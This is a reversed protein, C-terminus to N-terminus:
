SPIQTIPVLIAIWTGMRLVVLVPLTTYASYNIPENWGPKRGGYENGRPGMSAMTPFMNSTHWRDKSQEVVNDSNMYTGAYQEARLRIKYRVTTDGRIKDSAFSEKDFVVAGLALLSKQDRFFKEM